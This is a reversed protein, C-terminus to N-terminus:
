SLTLILYALKSVILYPKPYYKLYHEWTEQEKRIKKTKFKNRWIQLMNRAEKSIWIRGDVKSWLYAIWELGLVAGFHELICKRAVKAM